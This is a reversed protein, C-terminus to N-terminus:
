SDGGIEARVERKDVCIHRCVSKRKADTKKERPIGPGGKYRGMKVSKPFGRM